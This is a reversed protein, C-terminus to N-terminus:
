KFRKGHVWMVLSTRVGELVPTVCHPIWSPFVIMRGKKMLLQRPKGGDPSVLFSGGYFDENDSLLIVVSLKRVDDNTVNIIDNHWDYEGEEESNYITYQFPKAGSLEFGYIEDNLNRVAKTVKEYLWKSNEDYAIWKVDSKRHSTDTINLEASVTTARVKDYKKSLEHVKNVELDTLLDEWCVGYQALNKNMEDIEIMM